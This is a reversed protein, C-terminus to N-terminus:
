RKAEETVLSIAGKVFEKTKFGIRSSQKVFGESIGECGVISKLEPCLQKGYDNYCNVINRCYDYGYPTGGLVFSPANNGTTDIIHYKRDLPLRVLNYAHNPAEALLVDEKGYGAKRLLTLLSFGYDVCTGTSLVNLSAGAHVDNLAINNLDLRTDSVWNGLVRKDPTTKCQINVPSTKTKPIPNATYLNGPNTCIADVGYCCMEAELYDQMYIANDGVGKTLYIGECRLTNGMSYKNAFTCANAKKPDTLPTGDCCNIADEIIPDLGPDCVEVLDCSYGRSNIVILEGENSPWKNECITDEPFYATTTSKCHTKEQITIIMTDIGTAGDQDTVELEVKYSGPQNFRADITVGRGLIRTDQKWLFSNDQFILNGDVDFSESGDM